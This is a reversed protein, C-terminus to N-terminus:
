KYTWFGSYGSVSDLQGYGLSNLTTNMESSATYYKWIGSNYAWTINADSLSSTAITSTTGHLQWGSGITLNSNDSSLINVTGATTINVWYGKNVSTSTIDTYADGTINNGWASGNYDWVITTGLGTIASSLSTATPLVTLNWGAALSVTQGTVNQTLTASYASSMNGAKDKTKSYVTGTQSLTITLPTTTTTTYTTGDLSYMIYDANSPRNLVLDYSLTTFTSSNYDSSSFATPATNDIKFSRTENVDATGTASYATISINHDGESLSTLSILGDTSTANV